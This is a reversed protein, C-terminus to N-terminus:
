TGSRTDFVYLRNPSVPDQRGVLAFRRGDSFFSASDIQVVGPVTVQRAEGPGTPVLWLAGPPGERWVLVQRGDPSLAMPRGPGLEVPAAEGARHLLGEARGGVGVGSEGWLVVRGDSSVGNLVAWDLHEIPGDQASGKAFEVEQRWIRETLLVRGDPSVDDLLLEGTGPYLVRAGGSRVSLLGAPEGAESATVLVERGDPWWALGLADTFHPGWREVQGKRDVVVVEGASDLSLPHDIFAVREGSPSVRPHSLSGGSEACFPASPF